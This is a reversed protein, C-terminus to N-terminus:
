RVAGVLADLITSARGSWASTPRQAFARARAGFSAALADDRLIRGIADALALPTDPVLVAAESSGLFERVAESDTVVIPKGFGLLDALRVPVALETYRTLPIPVVCVRADALLAPLAPRGGPVVEIWDPPPTPPAVSTIIRLRAEPLDRRVLELAERLLDFGAAATPSLIAAVLSTSPVGLDPSSPDTGPPLLIAGRLGLVRALGASPAFRVTAIRRLAPMTVRWALDGLRQRARRVPFLDRHLQYGDRFFIGVSRGRLRTWALLCIDFPSATTTASEVYVADVRGTGGSRLWRWGTRARSARDGDIREVDAVEGLAAGLMAIRVKPASDLGAPNYMGYFLLRPRRGIRPATADIM